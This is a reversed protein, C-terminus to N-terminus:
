MTGDLISSLGDSFSLYVGQEKWITLLLSTLKDEDNLFEVGYGM